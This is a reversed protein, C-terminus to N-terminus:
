EIISSAKKIINDNFVFSIANATKKNLTILSTNFRQIPKKDAPYGLLIQKIVVGTTNSLIDYDVSISALAGDEVNEKSDGILIIKNDKALNALEKMGLNLTNDAAILIADVNKNKLNNFATPIITPSNVTENIYTLNYKTSLFQFKDQSFASNPEDPNYIRGAISINPVLEKVFKLYDDFNTADSLGTVNARYNVLGAYEPSTVYTYVITISDPIFQIAAKAAPTSVPIVIDIKEALLGNIIDQFKSDIGNANKEIYKINKGEIFGFKEMSKKMGLIINDVLESSNYRLIGANIFAPKLKVKTGSHFDYRNSFNDMNISLEIRNKSNLFAVNEGNEVSSYSTGYKLFIKKNNINLELVDGINFKTFYEKSINTECNGFNDVYLVEGLVTENEIKPNIVELDIPKECLTGFESIAKDSLMNVVADIYFQEYQIEDISQVNNSFLKLNNINHIATPSFKKRFRTTLGNDPAIVKRNGSQIIIRNADRGPEVLALFYTNDPYLSASSELLFGAENIDFDKSKIYQVDVNPYNKRVAGVIGMTVEVQFDNDSIIVLTKDTGIINTTNNETCSALLIIFLLLFIISRM